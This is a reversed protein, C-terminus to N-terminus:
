SIFGSITPGPMGDPSVLGATIAGGLYRNVRLFNSWANRNISTGNMDPILYPSLYRFYSNIIQSLAHQRQLYQFGASNEGLEGGVKLRKPGSGFDVGAEVALMFNGRVAVQYGIAAVGGFITSYVSESANKFEKNGSASTKQVGVNIGLGVYGGAYDKASSNYNASADPADAKDSPVEPKIEPRSVDFVASPASNTTTVPEQAQLGLTLALLSCCLFKNM